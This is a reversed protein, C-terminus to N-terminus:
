EGGLYKKKIEEYKEQPIIFVSEWEPDRLTEFDKFIEEYSNKTKELTMGQGCTQINGFKIMNIMGNRM